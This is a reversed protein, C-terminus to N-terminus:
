RSGTLCGRMRGDALAAVIAGALGHLADRYGNRASRRTDDSTMVITVEASPVVYLM